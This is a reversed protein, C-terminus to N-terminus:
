WGTKRYRSLAPEYDRLTESVASLVAQYSSDRFSWSQGGDSAGSVTGAIKGALDSGEASKNLRYADAAMEVIIPHLAVPMQEQNINVLVKSWTIQLVFRLADLETDSAGTLTKLDDLLMEWPM